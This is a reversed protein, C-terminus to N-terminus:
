LSAQLKDRAFNLHQALMNAVHRQHQHRQDDRATDPHCERMLGRSGGFWVANVSRCGQNCDTCSVYTSLMVDLM